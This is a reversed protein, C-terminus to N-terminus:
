QGYEIVDIEGAPLAREGSPTIVVFFIKDPPSRRTGVLKGEIVSGSKLRIKASVVNPAAVPQSPPATDGPSLVPKNRAKRLAGGVTLLALLLIVIGAVVTVTQLTQKPAAPKLRLTKANRAEGAIEKLEPVPHLEFFDRAMEAASSYRNGVTKALAKEVIRILDKSVDPRLGSLPPPPQDCHARLISIMTNGIFPLRGSIMEFLLVGFSYIDSAPSVEEGQIQEPAMYEPTGLVSGATTLGSERRDKALGFDMLVAHGPGDIMINSSKIDRHTIGIRHIAQLACLIQAGLNLVEDEPLPGRKRMYDALTEGQILEMAFYHVADEDGVSYIHILNPHRLRALSKAEREFRQIYSADRSYEPPLVKLAVERDLTKDFALYVAGMGGQGLKSRVEYPGLTRGVLDIASDSPM